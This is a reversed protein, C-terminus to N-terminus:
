EEEDVLEADEIEELPLPPPPPIPAYAIPTRTAKQVGRHPWTVTAGHARLINEFIELATKEDIPKQNPVPTSLLRELGDDEERFEPFLKELAGVVRPDKTLKGVLEPVIRTSAAKLEALASAGGPGYRVGDVVIGTGLYRHVEGKTLGAQPAAIELRITRELKELLKDWWPPREGDLAPCDAGEPYEETESSSM